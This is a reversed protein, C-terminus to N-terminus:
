YIKGKLERMITEAEMKQRPSASNLENGAYTLLRKLNKADPQIDETAVATLILIQALTARTKIGDVITAPTFERAFAGKGPTYQLQTRNGSNWVISDEFDIAPARKVRLEVKNLHENSM